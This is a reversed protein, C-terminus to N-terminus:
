APLALPELTGYGEEGYVLAPLPSRGQGNTEWLEAVWQMATDVIVDQVNFGGEDSAFLPVEPEIGDETHRVDFLYRHGEIAKNLVFLDPGELSAVVSFTGEGDQDPFVVFHIERAKPPLAAILATLTARAAADHARLIRLLEAIYESQTM